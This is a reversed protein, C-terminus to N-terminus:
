RASTQSLGRHLDKSAEKEPEMWGPLGSGTAEAYLTEPAIDVEDGWTLVGLEANVSFSRFFEIDKFREFVGGRSLYKSFDVVGRKGDDFEIEILYDGRYIAKVVDHLM